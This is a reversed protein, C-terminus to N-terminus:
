NNNDLLLKKRPAVWPAQIKVCKQSQDNLDLDSFGARSSRSYFRLDVYNGSETQYPIRVFQFWNKLRCDDQDNFLKNKSAEYVQIWKMGQIKPIEKIKNLEDNKQTLKLNNNKEKNFMGKPCKFIWFNQSQFQGVAVNYSDDGLLRVSYINWCFPNGPYPTMALDVLQSSDIKLDVPNGVSEAVIKNQNQFIIRIKEEVRLGEVIFGLITILTFSLALITKTSEFMKNFLWLMLLFYFSLILGTGMTMMEIKYALGLTMLFFLILVLKVSLVKKIPTIALPLISFWIWPEIIFVRDGYYWQNDWPYFPHVGYINLSDLAIHLSINIAILVFGWCWIVKDKIKFILASLVLAILAQPLALIFTHTHGRHHVLYGLQSSDYLSYLLDLDPFNAALISIFILFSSIKPNKFKETLDLKKFRLHKASKAVAYGVLSHTLNDM